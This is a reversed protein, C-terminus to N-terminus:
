VRLSNFHRGFKYRTAQNLELDNINLDTLDSVYQGNESFDDHPCKGENTATM